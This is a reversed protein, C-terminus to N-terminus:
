PLPPPGPLPEPDTRPWFIIAAAVGGGVWFWKKIGGFLKEHVPKPITPRIEEVLESFRPPYRDAEVAYRRNLVLMQRIAERASDIDDQALHALALLRYAGFRDSKPVGDPLCGSLRQIVEPLRGEGFNREAESFANECNM